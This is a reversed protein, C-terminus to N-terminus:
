FLISLAPHWGFSWAGGAKGGVLEVLLGERRRGELLCICCRWSNWGGEGRLVTGVPDGAECADGGCPGQGMRAEGQWRVEARYGMM